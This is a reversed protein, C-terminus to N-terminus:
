QMGDPPRSLAFISFPIQLWQVLPPVQPTGSLIISFTTAPLLEM